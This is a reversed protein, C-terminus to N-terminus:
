KIFEEIPVDKLKKRLYDKIAEDKLKLIEHNYGLIDRLTQAVLKPWHSMSMQVITGNVKRALTEIRSKQGIRDVIIITDMFHKKESYEMDREFRTVKDLSIEPNGRGIFGMDFRIGKGLKFLLTADSERKDKRESLWFVRDTLKSDTRDILKFGLLHLLSGLILKEFIKGYTSKESGRITLTQAGVSSMLLMLNQWNLKQGPDEGLSFSLNLKDFEKEFDKSVEQISNKYNKAYQGIKEPNDRLINQVAKDTLGLIWNLIWKDEKKLNGEELQKAALQPLNEMFSPYKKCGEIFMVVLGGNAISLRKRTVTETSDRINEGCLVDLIVERLTESGIEDVFKKGKVVLIDKSHKPFLNGIRVQEKKM